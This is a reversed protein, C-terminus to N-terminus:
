NEKWFLTVIAPTTTMGNTTAQKTAKPKSTGSGGAMPIPSKTGNHNITQFVLLYAFELAGSYKIPPEHEASRTRAPKKSAYARFGFIRDSNTIAGLLGLTPVPGATVVPSLLGAFVPELLEKM